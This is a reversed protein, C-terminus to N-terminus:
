ALDIYANWISSIVFKLAGDDEKPDSVGTGTNPNTTVGVSFVEAWGNPAALVLSALKRRETHNTTEVAESAVDIAVECM